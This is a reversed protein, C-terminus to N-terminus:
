GPAPVYICSDSNGLVWRYRSIELSFFTVRSNGLLGDLTANRRRIESAAQQAEAGRLERAKGYASLAIGEIHDSANGSRNDWLLSVEPCQRMNNVKQTESYSALWVQSLDTSFAYAMLHLDPRDAGQTALVCQWQETLLATIAKSLQQPSM